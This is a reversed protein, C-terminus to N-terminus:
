LSWQFQVPQQASRATSQKSLCNRCSKRAETVTRAVLDRFVWGLEIVPFLQSVIEQNVKDNHGTKSHDLFLRAKHSHQLLDVGIEVDLGATHHLAALAAELQTDGQWAMVQGMDMRTVPWALPWQVKPLNPYAPPCWTLVMKVHRKMLSWARQTTMLGESHDDPGRIPWWVRQNAMLPNPVLVRAQCYIELEFPLQFRLNNKTRIKVGEEKTRQLRRRSRM